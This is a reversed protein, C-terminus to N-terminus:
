KCEISDSLVDQLSISTLYDTIVNDLGRWVKLSQCKGGGSHECVEGDDPCDDPKVSGETVRMIDAVTYAIPPKALRYGGSAGRAAELWDTDKLHFIIQELYNKSIGTRESVDSLPVYGDESHEALDTLLQLAYRGKTSIKM